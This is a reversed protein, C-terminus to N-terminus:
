TRTLGVASTQAAGRFWWEKGVGKELASPNPSTGAATKGTSTFAGKKGQEFATGM